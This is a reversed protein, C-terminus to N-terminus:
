MAPVLVVDNLKVLAVVPADPIAPYVVSEVPFLGAGTNVGLTLVPVDVHYATLM